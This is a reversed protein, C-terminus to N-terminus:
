RARRLTIVNGVREARVDFGSEILRVFAEPQDPFISGGIRLGALDADGIVIRIVDPGDPRRNFEAIADALTSNALEVLQPQWALRRAVESSTLEKVEPPAPRGVLPVVAHFGANLFVRDPPPTSKAEAAPAPDVQVRGETVLVEVNGATRRVSFATGVARATVGEVEVVFPRAPNSTVAFHAEGRLLRVRRERTSFVVEIRSDRNLSVNSGDSLTAREAAHLSSAVTTPAPEVPVAPRIFLISVAAAAALAATGLSVHWIRRNRIPHRPAFFDPDPSQRSAPSLQPLRNFATMVGELQEVAAAHSPSAMRWQDFEAQEGATFGRDRRALWAGATRM